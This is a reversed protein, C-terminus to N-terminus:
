KRWPKFCSEKTKPLRETHIRTAAIDFNSSVDKESFQDCNKQNPRNLTIGKLACHEKILFGRDSMIKHEEEVFRIAETKETIASHSISGPYIDSFLIASGHPSIGILAKGAQTNKSFM